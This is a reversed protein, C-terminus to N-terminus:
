FYLSINIFHLVNNKQTKKAYILAKHIEPQVPLVLSNINEVPVGNELANTIKLLLHNLLM